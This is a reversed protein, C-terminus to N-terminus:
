IVGFLYVPYIHLPKAGIVARYGEFALTTTGRHSLPSSLCGVLLALGVPDILGIAARLALPHPSLPLILLVSLDFMPSFYELISDTM